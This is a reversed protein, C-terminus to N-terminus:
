RKPYGPAWTLEEPRCSAYMPETGPDDDTGDEWLLRVQFRGSLNQGEVIGTLTSAGFPVMVRDGRKLDTVTNGSTVM